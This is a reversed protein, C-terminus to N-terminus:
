STAYPNVSASTVELPPPPHQPGCKKAIKQLEDCHIAVKNQFQKQNTWTKTGKAGKATVPNQRCIGRCNTTIPNSARHGCNKVGRKQHIPPPPLCITTQQSHILAPTQLM